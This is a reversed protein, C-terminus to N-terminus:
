PALGVLTKLQLVDQHSLLRCEGPKMGKLRVPGIRVRRLTKVPHGVADLMLRVQRKRGESIVISLSTEGKAEERGLVLVEAPSTKRGEVFVGRRLRNLADETPLGSVLAHYEKEVKYRPHTMRLAFDGDNTFILLGDTDQDLRGVPKLVAGGMDPVYRRVTERGFPDDMTTIVGRPKFLVVYHHRKPTIPKGDVRVEDGTGVKTGQETVTQGNVQVRGDAILEEAKRRSCVGAQAIFRHLRVPEATPM